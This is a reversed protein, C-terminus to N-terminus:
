PRTVRLFLSKLYDGETHGAIVPHDAGAGGRWVVQASRAADNTAIAVARELADRSIAASCSSVLLWGNPVVRMAEAVLRRLRDLAGDVDADRRALKPPDVIVVDYADGARGREMVFRLADDEVWAISEFGNLKANERALLLAPGSSDVATVDRAGARATYLAFAGTHTFLDLVRAGNAVTAVLSRAARQDFFFGTKQGRGPEAVFTLGNEFFTTRSPAGDLEPAHGPVFVERRPAPIGEREAADDPAVVVLPNADPFADRIAARERWLGLSTVQAVVANSFRDVTLGPLGDGEANVVRFGTTQPSPLGVARRLSLAREIRAGILKAISPEDGTAEPARGLLRVRIQSKANYFGLGIARGDADVVRVVDGDAPTGEVRAVAGSMLWPHGCWLPRARGKKVVVSIM